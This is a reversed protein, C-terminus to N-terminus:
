QSVLGNEGNKAWKQRNQARKAQKQSNKVGKGATQRCSGTTGGGGGRRTLALPLSADGLRGHGTGAQPVAYFITKTPHANGFQCYRGWFSL